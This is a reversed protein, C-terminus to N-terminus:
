IEPPDHQDTMNEQRYAVRDALENALLALIVSGGAIGIGVIEASFRNMRTEAQILGGGFLFSLVCVAFLGNALGRLFSVLTSGTEM